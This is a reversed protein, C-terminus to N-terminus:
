ALAEWKKICKACHTRPDPYFDIEDCTQVGGIRRTSEWEHPRILGKGILQPHKHIPEGCATVAQNGDASVEGLLHIKLAM